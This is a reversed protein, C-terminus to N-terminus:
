RKGRMEEKKNQDAERKLRGSKMVQKERLRELRERWRKWKSVANARREKRRGKREEGGSSWGASTKGGKSEGGEVHKEGYEGKRVATVEM